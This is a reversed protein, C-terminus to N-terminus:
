TSATVKYKRYLIFSAPATVLLWFVQRGRRLLSVTLWLENSLIGAMNLMVKNGYEEVGIQGPVISGAAKFGLVGMEMVIADLMSVGVDFFRLIFYFELAGCVWHVISMLLAGSLKIKHQRYFTCLQMNIDGIHRVRETTIWRGLRTRHLRRALRHLYLEKHLLFSLLGIVFALSVAVVIWIGVAPLQVMSTFALYVVSAVILVIAAVILLVRSLLVSAVNAQTSVGKRDLFVGKLGDGAIVNTPNFVALNECILRFFFLEGLSVKEAEEAMVMRWAITGAMHGALSVAILVPIVSPSAVLYDVMLSFDTAQMYKVLIVGVFAIFLALGIKKTTSM